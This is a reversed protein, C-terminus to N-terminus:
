QILCKIKFIKNKYFKGVICHWNPGYKNDM